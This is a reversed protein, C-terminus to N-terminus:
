KIKKNVNSYNSFNPSFFNTPLASLFVSEGGERAWVYRGEPVNDGFMEEAFEVLNTLKLIAANAVQDEFNADDLGDGANALAVRMADASYTDCADALTMFNGTSKSMKEKNLLVHGNARIGKPWKSEDNAWMATHAYLYFTLHNPILDKGSVRLDVGYWYEFENRMTALLEAPVRCDAPVPTNLLLHDWVEVTMDSAEIGHPGPKTGDLGGSRGQLHHAITYYAMYITSDSLSEVLWKEDFPLRTGLGYSRSCAWKNLWELTRKFANRTEPAFTEVGELARETISRWEDEGYALYWQDANAVICKDGSRSIVAKEPEGYAIALGAAILEAKILPKADQVTKGKHDGVLMVGEYFGRLYVEKKAKDLNDRDNQSTIKLQTCAEVAALNGFGPTDIIPVPDFPLVWEDKVGFKERLPAKNKLDMLGAYDDPADSPVSTVIGTARGGKIGMFPLAYIREHQALPAALPTGILDTGKCTALPAPTADETALIQQYAMNLAAWDGTVLFEGEKASAYLGYEEEPGVWCNTQGYMTEPRLTGCVFFVKAGAPVAAALAAPVELCHMKILTFDQIGVGEGTQRDHDACPGNDRVSYVCPRKGYAIKGLAKLKTYQWRVFSDYFPNRDTTIFSRRWDVTAGFRKMDSIGLPPFYALWHYPDTFKPVDAVDVGLSQMIEWQLLPRSWAASDASKAALKAKGSKIDKPAGKAKPAAKAAQQAKDPTVRVREPIGEPMSPYQEYERRLRDSSAQIPMGTCHFGFPWLTHRGKLRQYGSAFEAKTLSFAHGLHLRGNM